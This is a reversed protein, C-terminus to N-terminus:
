FNVKLSRKKTRKPELFSTFLFEDDLVKQIQPKSNIITNKIITEQLEVEKSKILEIGLRRKRM